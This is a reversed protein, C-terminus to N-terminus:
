TTRYDVYYTMTTGEGSNNDIETQDYNPHLITVEGEEMYYYPPNKVYLPRTSDYHIYPVPFTMHRVAFTGQYRYHMDVYAVAVPVADTAIVLKSKALAGFTFDISKVVGICVTDMDTYFWVRDGPWIYSDNTGDAKIQLIDAEVEYGRFYTQAMAQFVYTDGSSMLTNGSVTVPDGLDGTGDNVPLPYMRYYVLVDVWQQTEMDWDQRIVSSGWDRGKTETYTFNGYRVATFNHTSGVAKLKPKKYTNEPSIYKTEHRGSFGADNRDVSSTIYLGDESLQGYQVVRLMNAQLLWQLRERATQQPCFGSVYRVYPEIQSDVTVPPDDEDFIMTGDNLPSDTFLREVFTEILASTFLEAALVRSDLIGLLSQARVRLVGRGIQEVEVSYYWGALLDNTANEYGMDEHLDMWKFKVDEPADDTVIEVEFECIPLTALTPDYEPAFSLSKIDSYTTGNCVIYVSM